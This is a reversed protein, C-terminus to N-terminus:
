LPSSAVLRAYSQLAARQDATYYRRVMEVSQHGLFQQLHFIPTGIDVARTAFTHRLKHAHVYVGSRESLRQMLQQVGTVTLPLAGPGIKQTISLFVERAPSTRKPDRETAIYRELRRALSTAESAGGGHTSLLPVTRDRGNKTLDPSHATRQVVVFAPRDRIHLDDVRLAVLESVRVGTALLTEVLLRDRNSECADLVRRVETPSLAEPRKYKAQRPRPIREIGTLGPADYGPTEACFRALARLYTRYKAVSAGSLVSAIDALFGELGAVTLDGLDSIGVEGLWLTFRCSPGTLYHRCNRVTTPSWDLAHRRLM